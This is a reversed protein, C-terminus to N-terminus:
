GLIPPVPGVEFTVENDNNFHKGHEVVHQVPDCTFDVQPRIGHEVVHQVPAALPHGTPPSLAEIVDQTIDNGVEFYPSLNTPTEWIVGETGPLPLDSPQVLNALIVSEILSLSTDSLDLFQLPPSSINCILWPLKYVLFM